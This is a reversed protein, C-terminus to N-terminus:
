HAAPKEAETTTKVVTDKVTTDKVTTDVTTVVAGSDTLTTDASEAKKESTCAAVSLTIALAAFGLKFANKM